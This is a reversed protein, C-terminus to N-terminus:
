AQQSRVSMEVGGSSISDGQQLLQFHDYIPTYFIRNTILKQELSGEFLDIQEDSGYNVIIECCYNLKSTVETTLREEPLAMLQIADLMAKSAKQASHVLRGNEIEYKNLYEKLFKAFEAMGSYAYYSTPLNINAEIDRVINNAVEYLRLPSDFISPDKLNLEALKKRREAQDLHRRLMFRYDGIARAITEVFIQSM